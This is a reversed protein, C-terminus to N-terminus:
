TETLTILGNEMSLTYPTQTVTDTLEVTTADELATVRTEAETIRDSQATIAEQQSASAQQM